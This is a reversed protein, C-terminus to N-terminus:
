GRRGGKKRTTADGKLEKKALEGDGADRLMADARREVADRACAKEAAERTGYSGVQKPGKNGEPYWYAMWDGSLNTDLYYTGGEADASFGDSEEHWSLDEPEAKTAPVLGAVRLVEQLLGDKEPEPLTTGPIELQDLDLGKLQRRVHFVSAKITKVHNGLMQSLRKRKSSVDDEQDLLEELRDRLDAELTPSLKPPQTKKAAM